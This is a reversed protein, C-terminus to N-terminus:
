LCYIFQVTIYFYELFGVIATSQVQDSIFYKKYVGLLLKRVCDMNYPNDFVYTKSTM